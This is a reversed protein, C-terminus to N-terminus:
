RATAIVYGIALTGWWAAQSVVVPGIIRRTSQQVRVANLMLVLLLVLKTRVLPSNLDPDLAIGTATLGALGAAMLKHAVSTLALVDRRRQRGMRWLVLYVHTMVVAGFGAPVFILHLYLAASRVGLDEVPLVASSVVIAAWGLLVLLCDTAQQLPWAGSPAARAREGQEAWAHM